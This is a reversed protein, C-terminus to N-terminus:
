SWDLLGKGMESVVIKIGELKARDLLKFIENGYVIYVKKNSSIEDTTYKEIVYRNEMKREKKYVKKV